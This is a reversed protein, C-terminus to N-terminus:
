PSAKWHQRVFTQVVDFAGAEVLDNHGATPALWFVKPEHAAAFVARGMDPPVITDREGTMVLVPVHIEPIRGILDFRDRLLWAVPVFPFRQQAIALISTYPSELLVAGVDVETALRVAVGTGLSEGWLLIRQAPIGFARLAAYGARADAQIGAESPAGDNGGYGRYELLLMGWGLRSLRALRPARYGINGGNGHLYLVVPKADDAPPALWALLDLGDETHVTLARANAEAAGPLVPRSRDPFYLFQRQRFALLGVVACYLGGAALAALVLKTIMRLSCDKHWFGSLNVKWPQEVATGDSDAPPAYSM